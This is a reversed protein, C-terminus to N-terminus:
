ADVCERVEVMGLFFLPSFYSCLTEKKKELTIASFFGSKRQLSNYAVRNLPTVLEFLSHAEQKSVMTKLRM